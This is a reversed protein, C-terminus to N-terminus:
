SDDGSEAAAAKRVHYNEVAGATMRLAPRGPLRLDIVALDRDLLEEGYHLAMVRSLAEMPAESPLKVVMGRDLAIDWRRKGVRVLARLRPMLDPASELLALAEGMKEPVGEGLLVPLDPHDARAGAPGIEVGSKDLLVLAGDDRRYLAAETRQVVAIRLAGQPDFQVTAREVAGLAEIRQRVEEVQLKLSSMGPEVGAVQRVEAMLERSGGTIEVDKVAFEPRAAVIDVLAAIQDEAAGRLRDDAVAIWGAAGLALIPLYVTAVARVAPKAWAREIRYSLKSPGPGKGAEAEPRPRARRPRRVEDPAIRPSVPQM